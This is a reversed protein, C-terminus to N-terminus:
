IELCYVYDDMYYGSGIDNCEAKIRKFGVAEYISITPNYKNVNLKIMKLNNIRAKEKLFSLIEKLYGKGRHEKYLYLKSLYLYDKKYYFATFGLIVNDSVIFYYQYGDELQREISSVSQFKNLMYDNQKVGVIKDYYDRLITTAVKSMNNISPLDNEKLKKFEIM